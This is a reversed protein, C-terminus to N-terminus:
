EPAIVVFGLRRYVERARPSLLFRVLGSAAAKRASALPALCYVVNPGAERPVELAIRVRSSLAADTEYVIAADVSRSAVAALAARVDLTPVVRDRLDKWLGVSELWRRAYVGAPVTEPGAIAVRTLRLLDAPSSVAAGDPGAPVVVVLANSLAVVREEARALGARVLADVQECDASFFVDASAGARIQRALDSSAGFNFLVRHGTESEYARGIERLADTLSAAAFVLLEEARLSCPLALALALGLVGRRQAKV